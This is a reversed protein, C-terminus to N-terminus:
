SGFRGEPIYLCIVREAPAKETRLCAHWQDDQSPLVEDFPVVELVAHSQVMFHDGPRLEVRWGSEIWTVAGEPIPACDHGSCCAPDYWDHSVAPGPSLLLVALLAVLAQKLERRRLEIISKLRDTMRGEAILQGEAGELEGLDPLQRLKDEIPLEVRKM